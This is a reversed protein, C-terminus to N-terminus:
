RPATTPRNPTSMLVSADRNVQYLTIQAAQPDSTLGCPCPPAGSYASM